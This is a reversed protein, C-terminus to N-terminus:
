QIYSFWVQISEFYENPIIYFAPTALHTSTSVKIHFSFIMSHCIFRPVWGLHIFANNTILIHKELGFFSKNCAATTPSHVYLLLDLNFNNLILTTSGIPRLIIYDQRFHSPRHSLGVSACYASNILHFIVCHNITSSCWFFWKSVILIPKLDLHCKHHSPECLLMKQDMSGVCM